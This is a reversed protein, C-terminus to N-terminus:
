LLDMSKSSRLVLIFNIREQIWTWSRSDISPNDIVSLCLKM